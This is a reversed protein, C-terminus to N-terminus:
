KMEDVIVIVERGLPSPRVMGPRSTTTIATTPTKSTAASADTAARSSTGIKPAKCPRMAIESENQLRRKSGGVGVSSARSSITTALPSSNPENTDTDDISDDIVVADQSTSAKESVLSQAQAAGSLTEVWAERFAIELAVAVQRAVSNGVVRYQDSPSGLLVDEDRFGQARKVEMISM